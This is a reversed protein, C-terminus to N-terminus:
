RSSLRGPNRCFDIWPEGVSFRALEPDTYDLGKPVRGCAENILDERRWPFVLPGLALPTQIGRSAVSRTRSVMLYRGDGTFAVGAADGDVPIFGLTPFSPISAASPARTMSWLAVGERATAAFTSGDPSFAGGNLDSDHVLVGLESGSADLVHVSRGEILALYGGRPSFVGVQGGHLSPGRLLNRWDAQRYLRTANAGIAALVQGGPDALLTHVRTSADLEVVRTLRGTDYVATLGEQTAIAIQAGSRTFVMSTVYGPSVTRLECGSRWTCMSLDDDRAIALGAM